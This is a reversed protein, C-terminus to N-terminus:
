KKAVLDLITNMYLKKEEDSMNKTVAEDCYIECAENLNKAIFYVFPNFWNIANVICVFWKLPLDMHKYHTLEHIYILKEGEGVPNKPVYILPNICGTLLPSDSDDVERVRINKRIKLSEKADNLITNESIERSAKRKKTLFVVYSGLTLSLFVLCGSIWVVVLIEGLSINKKVHSVAEEPAYEGETDDGANDVIEAPLEYEADMITNFPIIVPAETTVPVLKWLPLLMFIAAFLWINRQWRGSFSKRMVGKLLLLLVIFISGQLNLFLLTKLFGTM